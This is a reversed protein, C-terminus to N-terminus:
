ISCLCCTRPEDRTQQRTELTQKDTKHSLSTAHLEFLPLAHLAGARPGGQLLNCQRLPPLLKKQSALTGRLNIRLTRLFLLIRSAHAGGSGAKNPRNNENIVSQRTNNVLTRSM